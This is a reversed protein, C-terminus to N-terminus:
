GLAVCRLCLVVQFWFHWANATRRSCNTLKCVRGLWLSSAM